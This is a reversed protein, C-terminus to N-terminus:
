SGAVPTGGRPAAPGRPTAAPAAAGADTQETRTTVRVTAGPSLRLAGDVVLRDGDHLGEAVFWQERYWDGVVIPRQEAKGEANILWVFHGGAGQQVARQPILIARPRVAGTIRARVFQNPRLVGDPNDVTARIQFTGTQSNYSPDAFTITGTHPFPTGDALEIEVVLRNSPPLRLLGKGINTRLRDVENESISFNVWIPSLVSVTTLQSNQSSVYTGEAVASYSTVGDVPSTITTYSLDLRASELQAKSQAVAAAAQEYQGKADDLDKQSLANQEVLPRTRKLNATAVELAAQNRQLAAAAGDVQVKFPKPDIQYLVQGKRVVAGETYVRKDLFGSVRAQINVAQSSQTQAVYDASVPVDHAEITLTTVEPAPAGPKPTERGCGTLVALALLALGAERWPSRTSEPSRPLRFLPM